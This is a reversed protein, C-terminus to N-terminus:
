ETRDVTDASGCLTKDVIESVMSDMNGGASGVVLALRDVVFRLRLSLGDDVFVPHARYFGLRRCQSGSCDTTGPGPVVVTLLGVSVLVLREQVSM